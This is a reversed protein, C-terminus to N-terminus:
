IAATDEEIEQEQWSEDDLIDPDDYEEFGGSDGVGIAELEESSPQRLLDGTAAGLMQLFMYIRQLGKM